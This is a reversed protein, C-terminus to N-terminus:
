ATRENFSEKMSRDKESFLVTYPAKKTVSLNYFTESFCLFVYFSMSICLFLMSLCLFAYFPRLFLMSFIGFFNARFFKKLFIRTETSSPNEQRYLKHAHETAHYLGSKLATQKPRGNISRLVFINFKARELTRCVCSCRCLMAVCSIQCM